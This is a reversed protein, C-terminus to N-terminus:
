LEQIQYLTLYDDESSNKDERYKFTLRYSTSNYTVIQTLTHEEGDRVIDTLEIDFSGDVDTDIYMRAKQRNEFMLQLTNNDFGVIQKSQEANVTANLFDSYRQPEKNDFFLSGAGFAISASVVLVAFGVLYDRREM